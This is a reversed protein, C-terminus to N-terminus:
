GFKKIFLNFFWNNIVGRKDYLPDFRKMLYKIFDM